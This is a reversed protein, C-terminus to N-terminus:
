STYFKLIFKKGSASCCLPIYPLGASVCHRKRPACVTDTCIPGNNMPDHLMGPRFEDNIFWDVRECNLGPVVFPVVKTLKM